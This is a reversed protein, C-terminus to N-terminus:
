RPWYVFSILKWYSPPVYIVYDPLIHAPKKEASLVDWYRNKATSLFKWFDATRRQHTIEAYAASKQVYYVAYAAKHFGKVYRLKISWYFKLQLQNIPTHKRCGLRLGM